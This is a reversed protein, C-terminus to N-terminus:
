GRRRVPSRGSLNGRAPSAFTEALSGCIFLGTRRVYHQREAAGAIPAATM